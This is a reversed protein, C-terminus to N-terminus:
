LKRNGSRIWHGYIDVTVSISHHGMQEKVYVPSVGPELAPVCLHSTPFPSTNGEVGGEEFGEQIDEPHLETVSLLM